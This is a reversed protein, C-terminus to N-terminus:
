GHHHGHEAHDGDHTSHNSCVAGHLDHAHNHHHHYPAIANAAVDGFLARYAPDNGVQEPHGECCVHQNLCLVRDTQAMVWHLDHSVMLVGCRHRHRLDAILAYMETQGGVDVGQVPEDLVLLDPNRLLARALLVRQMEGGSLSQVANKELGGAGVEKLAAQIAATKASRQQSRAESLQLFRLTSLPLNADIHLQQPMYGVRLADAKRVSGSTPSVLGLAIKLLTSKGAGNPGIITIIEGRQLSLSINDLIKRGDRMVSVGSLSILTESM